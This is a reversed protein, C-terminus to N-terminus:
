YICRSRTGRPSSGTLYQGLLGNGNGRMGRGFAVFIRVQGVATREAGSLLDVVDVVCSTGQFPDLRYLRSAITTGPAKCVKNSTKADEPFGVRIRLRPWSKNRQELMMDFWKKYNRFWRLVDELFLATVRVINLVFLIAFNFLKVFFAKGV